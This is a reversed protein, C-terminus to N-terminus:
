TIDASTRLAAFGSPPSFSPCLSPVCVKLPFFIPFWSIMGKSKADMTNPNTSLEIGPYLVSEFYGALGHCVGRYRTRFRLRSHRENHKNTDSSKSIERNSSVSSDMFGHEFTWAQLIHAPTPSITSPEAPIASGAQARSTSSAVGAATPATSLYDIAHLSVVAPTEPATLEYQARSAIDAHIKPAAIPTLYATYSRPISIGYPRALLHMMGDLCEPSLENDAFSGLLESILIDIPLDQKVGNLTTQFPGSWSRMDSQVLTVKNEWDERNHRQLLVFANPNKEIAWLAIPVNVAESAKLARTVLPGRGAGCVAIIVKGFPGSTPKSEKKWDILAREIAKEYLDYKVPDKEFVEYTMSELNDALPQLPVQLYDQYGSGYREVETRAPQNRQLYRIYNLHALPETMPKNVKKRMAAAEAITPFAAAESSLFGDAVSVREDPNELGPIPGVNQLIIWPNVKLRMIRKIFGQIPRLLAPYGDGNPTFTSDTLM